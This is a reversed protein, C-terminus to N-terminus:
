EAPQQGGSRTPIRLLHRFWSLPKYLGLPVLLLKLYNGEDPLEGGPYGIREPQEQSWVWVHTDLLLKLRADGLRRDHGYPRHGAPDGHM